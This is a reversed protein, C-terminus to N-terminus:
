IGERYIDKDLNGRTREMTSGGTEKIGIWSKEKELKWNYIFQEV